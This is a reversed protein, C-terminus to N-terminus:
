NKQEATMESGLLALALNGANEHEKNATEVINKLRDRASFVCKRQEVTLDSIAGKIMLVVAEDHASSM